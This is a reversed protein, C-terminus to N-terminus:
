SYVAIVPLRRTMQMYNLAQLHFQYLQKAYSRFALIRKKDFRFFPGALIKRDFFTWLFIDLRFFDLIALKLGLLPSRM